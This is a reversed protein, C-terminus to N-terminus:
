IKKFSIGTKELALILDPKDESRIGKWDLVAHSVKELTCEICQTLMESDVLKVAYKPIMHGFLAEDSLAMKTFQQNYHTGGIGIVASKSSVSFQSIVDLTADAVARAANQDAWQIPSSGLEVFMTPIDISPGHHTCEYSVDYNLKLKLKSLNLAKLATQMAFAPAISLKKPIGGLESDGFNGPAHVSLTPRGSKSSHRSIFIILTTNPFDTSLDQNKVSEDSLTVLTVEHQGIKKTYLPSQNFTNATEQFLYNNLIQEKINLSASDKKSAIILIM